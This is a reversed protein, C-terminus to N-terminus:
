AMSRGKGVARFESSLLALHGFGSDSQRFFISAFLLPFLLTRVVPLPIGNACLPNLCQLTGHFCCIQLCSFFCRPAYVMSFSEIVEVVAWVDFHEM